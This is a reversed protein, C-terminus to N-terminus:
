GEADGPDGGEELRTGLAPPSVQSLHSLALGAPPPVPVPPRPAAAGLLLFLLEPFRLAAEEKPFIGGSGFAGLLPAAASLLRPNPVFSAAPRGLPDM